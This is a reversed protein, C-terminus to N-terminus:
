VKRQGKIMFLLKGITEMPHGFKYVIVMLTINLEVYKRHNVYKGIFM